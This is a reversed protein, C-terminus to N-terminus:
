EGSKALRSKRAGKLEVGRGQWKAASEELGQFCPAGVHKSILSGREGGWM